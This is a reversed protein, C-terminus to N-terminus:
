RGKQSFLFWAAGGIAIILLWPIGGGSSAGFLGGGMGIPTGGAAIVPAMGANPYVSGQTTPLGSLTAFAVADGGTTVTNIVPPPQMAPTPPIAVGYGISPAHVEQKNAIDAAADERGLGAAGSTDVIGRSSFKDLLPQDSDEYDPGGANTYAARYALLLAQLYEDTVVQGRYYPM